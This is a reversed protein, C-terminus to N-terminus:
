PEPWMIKHSDRVGDQKIKPLDQGDVFWGLMAERSPMRNIPRAFQCGHRRCYVSFNTPQGTTKNLMISIRGWPEGGPCSYAQGGSFDSEWVLVPVPVPVPPAPLPPGDGGVAEDENDPEEVDQQDM